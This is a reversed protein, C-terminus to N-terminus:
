SQSELEIEEQKRRAFDESSTPVFAYKGLVSRSQQLNNATTSSNTITILDGPTCSFYDCLVAITELKVAKARGKRYDVLRNETVGTAQSVEKLTIPRGNTIVNKAILADLNIRVTVM